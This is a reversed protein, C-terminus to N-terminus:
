DPTETTRDKRPRSNHFDIFEALDYFSDFDVRDYGYKVVVYRLYFAEQIGLGEDLLAM